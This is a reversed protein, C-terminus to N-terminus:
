NKTEDTEDTEITEIDFGVDSGIQFSVTTGNSFHLHVRNAGPALDAVDDQTVDVLTCGILPGLLTPDRINDVIPDEDDGM